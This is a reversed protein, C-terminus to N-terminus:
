PTAVTCVPVKGAVIAASVVIYLVLFAIGKHKHIEFGALAAGIIPAVQPSVPLLALLARGVMMGVAAIALIGSYPIIEGPFTLFACIEPPLAVM